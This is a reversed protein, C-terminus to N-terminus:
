GIGLLLSFCFVVSLMFTRSTCSLQSALCGTLGTLPFGPKMPATSASAVEYASSSTKRAM